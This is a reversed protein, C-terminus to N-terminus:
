RGYPFAARSATKRKRDLADLSLSRGPTPVTMLPASRNAAKTRSSCYQVSAATKTAVRKISAHRGSRVRSQPAAPAPTEIPRRTGLARKRGGRQRVM